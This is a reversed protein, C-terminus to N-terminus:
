DQATTLIRSDVSYVVTQQDREQEGLAEAYGTASETTPRMESFLPESSHIAIIKSKGLTTDDVRFALGGTEEAEAVGYAVRVPVTGGQGDRLTAIANDQRSLNPLLHFVNGSVDLVSVSLYGDSVSGPLVVDIVPNEGVLFRGSPNPKDDEDGLAFAIDIPSSPAQPLFNEILCLSPNLVEADLTVKRTGTVERLADFLAARGGASALTGQVVVASEPGYGTAPPDILELPGCDAFGALLPELVQPSLFLPILEIQASGSLGGPMGAAFVQEVADHLAPDSTTGTLTADNDVIDLRWSDLPRAADLTAMVDGGWSESIAGSALTLAAQGSQSAVLDTLAAEVAPSPAHGVARPVGNNIQM